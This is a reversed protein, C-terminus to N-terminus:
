NEPNEQVPELSQENTLDVPGRWDGGWEELPDSECLFRTDRGRLQGKDNQFVWVILHAKYRNKRWWYWGQKTPLEKTWHDISM